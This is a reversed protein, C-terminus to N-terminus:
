IASASASSIAVSYAHSVLRHPDLDGVLHPLCDRAHSGTVGLSAVRLAGLTLPALTKGLYTLRSGSKSTTEGEAGADEGPEGKPGQPGAPGPPWSPLQM